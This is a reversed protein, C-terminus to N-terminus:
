KKLVELLTKTDNTQKPDVDSLYIRVGILKCMSYASIFNIAPM